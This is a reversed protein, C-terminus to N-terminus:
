IYLLQESLQLRKWMYNGMTVSHSFTHPGVGVGKVRGYPVRLGRLTFGNQGSPSAICYMYLRYVATSSRYLVVSLPCQM